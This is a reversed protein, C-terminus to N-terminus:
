RSRLRSWPTRTHVPAGVESAFTQWRAGVEQRRAHHQMVAAVHRWGETDDDRVAAGDLRVNAVLAKAAGKGISLMPWLREAAAARVVAERADFSDLIGPPLEVSRRALELREADLAAWEQLRERLLGTWGGTEGRIAALRFPSLWLADQEVPHSSAFSHLADALDLAHEAVEPTIRLASVPGTNATEQLQGARVLDEHWRRVIEASPLDAPSPLVAAVHDLLDGARRRSEALAAIDNDGFGVESAFLTPRDTFWSFGDREKVVRQALEAPSEGRPGIKSLHAAAIADLEHDIAVVRKRLGDIEAEMRRIANRRNEPRTGEVVSQIERVASEIQRLGQRESSLVAIALPQVEPPLQDKLVALAAEGRSVVLVREGTAMAHCILNAITHTKGTGPPGQVVLGDAQKLRRVIEIQDDNFPKPFFVDFSADHFEESAIDTPSRSADNSCLKASVLKSLPSTPSSL